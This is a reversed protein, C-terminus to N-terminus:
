VNYVPDCPYPCPNRSSKCRSQIRSIPYHRESGATAPTADRRIRHHRGKEASSREPEMIWWRSGYCRCAIRGNCAATPKNSCIIGRTCAFINAHDFRSTLDRAMLWISLRDNERPALWYIWGRGQQWHKIDHVRQRLGNSKNARFELWAASVLNELRDASLFDRRSEARWKKNVTTWRDISRENGNRHSM